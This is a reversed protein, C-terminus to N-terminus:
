ARGSTGGDSGSKINVNKILIRQVSEQFGRLQEPHFAQGVVGSRAVRRRRRRPGITPHRHKRRPRMEMM